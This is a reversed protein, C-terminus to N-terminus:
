KSPYIDSSDGLRSAEIPDFPKAAVVVEISSFLGPEVRFTPSPSKSEERFVFRVDSDVIV